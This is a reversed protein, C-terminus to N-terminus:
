APLPFENLYPLYENELDVQLSALVCVVGNYHATTVILDVIQENDLHKRLSQFTKESVTRDTTMQRAMEVVTAAAEDLDAPDGESAKILAHIDSDTVGAARGMRIHHCWEYPSRTIYGVVMIALERLRPEVRSGSRFYNALALSARRGNPSHVLVRNLNIPQDLLDQHEPLLDTKDLYPLRAM